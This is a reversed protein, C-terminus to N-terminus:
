YNRVNIVFLDEEQRPNIAENHTMHMLVGRRHGSISFIYGALWGVFEDLAEKSRPHKLLKDSVYVTSNFIACENGEYTTGQLHFDAM